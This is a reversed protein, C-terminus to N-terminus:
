KMLLVILYNFLNNWSSMIQKYNNEDNEIVIQSEFPLKLLMSWAYHIYHHVYCMVEGTYYYYHM